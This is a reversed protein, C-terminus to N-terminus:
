KNICSFYLVSPLSIEPTRVHIENCDFWDWLKTEPSTLCIPSPTSPSNDYCGKTWITRSMRRTPICSRDLNVGLVWCVIRTWNDLIGVPCCVQRFKMVSRLLGAQVQGTKDPNPHVQGAAGGGEEGGEWWTWIWIRSPSTLLTLIAM